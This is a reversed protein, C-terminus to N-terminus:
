YKELCMKQVNQETRRDMSSLTHVVHTYRKCNNLTLSLLNQLNLLKKNEPDAIIQNAQTIFNYNM